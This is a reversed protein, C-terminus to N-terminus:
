PAVGFLQMLGCTAALVLALLAATGIRAGWMTQRHMREMRAKHEAVLQPLLDPKRSTSVNLGGRAKAQRSAAYASSYAGVAACAVTMWM